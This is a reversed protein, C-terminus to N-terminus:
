SICGSTEVLDPVEIEQPREVPAEDRRVVQVCLVSRESLGVDDVIELLFHEVLTQGAVHGGERAEELGHAVGM